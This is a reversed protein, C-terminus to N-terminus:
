APSLRELRERIARRARESGRREPHAVHSDNAGALLCGIEWGLQESDVGADIEDARQAERVARVLSESWYDRSALIRDRVPGPQSDFEALAAEFFCGGKFVDREVYSLFAESLALVRGVGAPPILGPKLVEETFIQAAMDVTALQLEQKSGFHAFIGSKSIGLEGALRQLSVAELGEASALQAARRLIEQRTRDGKLRRGDAPAPQVAM